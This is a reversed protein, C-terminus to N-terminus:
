GAQAAERQRKGGRLAPWAAWAVTAAWLALVAWGQLRLSSAPESVLSLAREGAALTWSALVWALWNGRAFWAFALVAGIGAIALVYELGLEAATHVQGSVLGAAAGAAGAWVVWPKRAATWRVAWAVLAVLALSYVADQVASGALSLAPAAAGAEVPAEPSFIALTHLRGRLIHGFQAVAAALGGALALACLADGASARRGSARLRELAGGGLALLLGVACAMALFIGVAGMAVGAIMVARFTELPVATSYARMMLPLNSVSALVGLATAPLALLIAKRWRLERKRTFLALLVLGMVIAGSFVGMRLLMLATSLANREARARVFAEPLKWYVSTSSVRDGAVEVRARYRAEDVNRADGPRAEWVLTHDRRAKKAESTTEKLEFAALDFGHAALYAGAVARAAEPTIDAGPRDEPLIHRFQTVMGSAPHVSVRVEERELPRYYRVSWTRPPALRAFAGSVEKVPRRELMYRATDRPRWEGGEEHASPFVAARFDGPALGREKLFGDAAARAEGKTLAFRPEKGFRDAPVLLLAFGAAGIALAAARRRASWRRYPVAAAPAVAEEEVPAESTGEAANTLGEEPEFGGRRWYFFLALAVPLLMVGASAAGSLVFYTNNSRLLLLATYLADVSYHWVLAPLVGWRFLILGLAVGGIGVEVGRIWFPQQPYAAHGFGWIFGALVIAAWRSRVVSRLWPIAFLRFLFEESVAPLFGGFLVFLWPFRTNLMDSYPVDAPSWAGFRTALLSRFLM